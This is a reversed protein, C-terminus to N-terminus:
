SDEGEKRPGPPRDPPVEYDERRRSLELQASWFAGLGILSMAASVLEVSQRGTIAWFVASGVLLALGVLQVTRPSLQSNM